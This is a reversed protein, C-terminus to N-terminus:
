AHLFILEGFFSIKKASTKGGDSDDDIVLEQSKPKNSNASSTLTKKAPTEKEKKENSPLVWTGDSQIEIEGIDQNALAKLVEQFYEDLILEDFPAPRNCIPCTWTRIRENMKLYSFLDFCQLTILEAIMM